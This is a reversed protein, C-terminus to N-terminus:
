VLRRCKPKIQYLYAFSCELSPLSPRRHLLGNMERKVPTRHADCCVAISCEKPYQTCVQLHGASFETASVALTTGASYNDVFLSSSRALVCNSVDRALFDYSDFAECRVIFQVRELFCEHLMSGNLASEACRSHDELSVAQNELVISGAFRFNDLVHILVQTAASCVGANHVCYL